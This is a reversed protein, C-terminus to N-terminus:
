GFIIKDNFRLDCYGMSQWQCPVKEILGRLLPFKIRSNTMSLLIKRGNTLLIMVQDESLICIKKVENMMDPIMAKIDEAVSLGNSWYPFPCRQGARLGVEKCCSLVPLTMSSDKTHINDLLFGFEDMLFRKEGDEWIAVPLNEEVKITVTCPFKREVVLSRIWPQAEAISSACTLDFNLMNLGEKIGTWMRIQEPTIKNIGKIEIEKIRLYSWKAGLIFLHRCLPILTLSVLIVLYPLIKSPRGQTKTRKKKVKQKSKGVLKPNTFM